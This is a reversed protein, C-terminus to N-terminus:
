GNVVCKCGNHLGRVTRRHRTVPDPGVPYGNRTLTEAIKTADVGDRLLAATLAEHDAPDLQGMIWDIRCQKPRPGSPINTLDDALM